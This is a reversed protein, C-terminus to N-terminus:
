QIQATVSRRHYVATQGTFSDLVSLRLSVMVSENLTRHRHTFPTLSHISCFFDIM